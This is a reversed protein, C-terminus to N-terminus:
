RSVSRANEEREKLLKEMDERYENIFNYQKVSQVAAPGRIDRLRSIAMEPELSKDLALLLCAAVLCSRGLGGFCHVLSKRESRLNQLMKEIMEALSATSPTQGDPFPFQHVTIDATTLEQILGPVRYKSLEGRTCLVFVELIGQSKLTGIDSSLSRWTDKFRRGPLGSIGLPETIDYQSLDLWDIKLPTRDVERDEDDSSDFGSMESRNNSAAEIVM